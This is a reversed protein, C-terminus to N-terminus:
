RTHSDPMAQGAGATHVLPNFLRGYASSKRVEDAVLRHGLANWHKDTPFEFRAGDRAHREIFVPQMDRVEYGRATAEATFYARMHAQFSKEAAELTAASYIDPRMGDLVFLIASPAM